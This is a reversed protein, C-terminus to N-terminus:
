FRVAGIRKTPDYPKRPKAAAQAELHAEYLPFDDLNEHLFQKVHSLHRAAWEKHFHIPAALSQWTAPLERQYGQEALRDAQIVQNGKVQVWHRRLAEQMVSNAVSRRLMEILKDELTTTNTPDLLAEYQPKGLFSVLAFRELDEILPRVIEYTYRSISLSYARRFASATNLLVSMHRAAAPSESWAPYDDRSIHLFELMTEIAEYGQALFFDRYENIQYRYASRMTDSEVRMLGAESMQIDNVKSYEYLALLALARRLYPLLRAEEESFDEEDTVWGGEPVAGASLWNGPEIEHGAATQLQQWLGESIFDRIHNNYAAYLGVEMSALEVSVNAGGGAYEKLQSIHDFFYYM